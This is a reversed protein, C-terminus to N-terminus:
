PEHPIPMRRAEPLVALVQIIDIQLYGFQPAFSSDVSYCKTKIFDFNASDMSTPSPHIMMLDLYRIMVM